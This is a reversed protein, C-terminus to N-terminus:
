PSGTVKGTMDKHMKILRTVCKHHQPVLNRLQSPSLDPMHNPDQRISDRLAIWAANPPMNMHRMSDDCSSLMNAIMQRHMPIMAV